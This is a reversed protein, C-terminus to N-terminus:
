QGLPLPQSTAALLLVQFGVSRGPPADIPGQNAVDPHLVFLRRHRGGLLDECCAVALFGYYPCAGVDGRVHVEHASTEGPTIVSVLRSGFPRLVGERAALVDEWEPQPSSRLLRDWYHPEEQKEAVVFLVLRLRVAEGSGGNALRLHVMGNEFRNDTHERSTISVRPASGLLLGHASAQVLQRTLDAYDRTADAVRNTEEAVRKTEVAMARTSKAM